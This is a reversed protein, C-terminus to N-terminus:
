AAAILKRGQAPAAVDAAAAAAEEEELGLLQKGGGVRYWYDAGFGAAILAGLWKNSRFVRWCSQRSDFDVNRLQWTLHAAAGGVSLVFFPASCSAAVGTSALLGVFSASFVSLIPLTKDGFLLATSKVGAHIDDSKDQPALLLPGPM